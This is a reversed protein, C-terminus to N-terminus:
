IFQHININYNRLFNTCKIIRSNLINKYLIINKFHDVKNELFIKLLLNQFYFNKGLVMKISENITKIQEYLILNNFTSVKKVFDPFKSFDFNPYILTTTNHNNIKFHLIMTWLNNLMEASGKFSYCLLYRESNCNRSTKPKIIKVYNYCTCLIFYYVNSNHTFMDFFKIVFTGGIKQTSMALYMECLLLKSSIIEQANFIKVDFGGDATVFDFGNPFRELVNNITKRLTDPDTIDGYMLRSEDLYRDYKIYKDFKSISAFNTQLNKKRRIDSVAEIFGGPAECIFFCDLFQQSIISEHYVMEYLKFYARSVVQKKCFGNLYLNVKESTKHFFYHIKKILGKRIPRPSTFVYIRLM